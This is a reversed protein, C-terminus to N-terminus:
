RVAEPARPEPAAAEAPSGAPPLGPLRRIRPPVLLLLWGALGGSCGGVALSLTLSPSTPASPTLAESFLTLQVGTTESSRNANSTLSRAVANAIQAARAPRAATGTIEVMPADPSTAARVRPRLFEVPLDAYDQANRLVAGGTTIRGFAQAYGLATGPDSRETPAVVVQSTATYQDPSLLGHAAGAALGLVTCLVLPRGARLRAAGATYLGRLRRDAGCRGARRHAPPRRLWRPLRAAGAASERASRAAKARAREARAEEKGQRAAAKAEQRATRGAQRAAQRTEKAERRTARNGRGGGEERKERKAGENEKEGKVERQAERKAEAKVKAKTRRKTRTSAVRGEEAPVPGPVPVRDEPKAHGSSGPADRADAGSPGGRGPLVGASRPADPWQVDPASPSTEPNEPLM